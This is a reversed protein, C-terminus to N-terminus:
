ADPKVRRRLEACAACGDTPILTNGHAHWGPMPSHYPLSRLVDETSITRSEPMAAM